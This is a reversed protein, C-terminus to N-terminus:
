DASCARHKPESTQAHITRMSAQLSAEIFYNPKRLYRYRFRRDVHSRRREAKTVHHRAIIGAPDHFWLLNNLAGRSANRFTRSAQESVVSGFGRGGNKLTM